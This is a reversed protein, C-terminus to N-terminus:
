QNPKGSALLPQRDDWQDNGYITLDVEEATERLNSDDGNWLNRFVINVIHEYRKQLMLLQAPIDSVTREIAMSVTICVQCSVVFVFAKTTNTLGPLDEGNDDQTKFLESTWLILASNTGLAMYSIFRMIYFWAGINKAPEPFPRRHMFCLKVSDVHVEAINNLLALLPTLPFAVVFLNIFGFQIVMENYDEFAEAHEYPVLKAQEEIYNHRQDQKTDIAKRECYLQYRYKLYPVVVETTNGVVIRILFLILLQDRLETLCDDKSFASPLCHGEISRKVFAIYFFSAFSNCFQFLFVKVILHNEYERDTRHNELDNLKKAVGRYVTNLVLIQVANLGTMALTLPRQYQLDLNCQLKNAEDKCHNIFFKAYFLGGLAVIVIGVMTLVVFVSVMFQRQRKKKDEFTMEEADDVPHLSKTGRFQARYHFARHYGHMGWLANFLHNKRKWIESFVASWVVVFAAFAILIYGQNAGEASKNTAHKRRTEVVVFTIIGAITPFLLMKTYFGLWAFYLAVKEGFYARIKQLPQNVMLWHLAWSHRLDHLAVDDHLAFMNGVLYGAVVLWDTNIHRQVIGAALRIRDKQLFLTEEKKAGWKIPYRRYYPQYMPEFRYDAYPAFYTSPEYSIEMLAHYFRGWLTKPGQPRCSEDEVFLGDASETHGWRDLAERMEPHNEKGDSILLPDMEPMEPTAVACGRIKKLHDISNQFEDDGIERRVAELKDSHVSTDFPRNSVQLPYDTRDAEVRLDNDDAKITMIIEDGDVSRFMRTTLGCALQVRRAISVAVLECFKAESTPSLDGIFKEYEVTLLQEEQHWRRQQAQVSHDADSPPLLERGQDDLYCRRTRLARQFTDIVRVGKQTSREHDKGMMLSVYAEVTFNEPKKAEGGERYPFIMVLDHGYMVKDTSSSAETKDLMEIQIHPTASTAPSRMAAYASDKAPLDAMPTLPAHDDDSYDPSGGFSFQNGM